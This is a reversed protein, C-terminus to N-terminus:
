DGNDLSGGFLSCIEDRVIEDFGSIVDDNPYKRKFIDVVMLTNMLSDITFESGLVNDISWKREETGNDVTTSVNLADKNVKYDNAM